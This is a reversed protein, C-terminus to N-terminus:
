QNVCASLAEGEPTCIAAYSEVMTGNFCSHTVRGPVGACLTFNVAAQECLSYLGIWYDVCQSKCGELTPPGLYCTVEMKSLCTPTCFDSELFQGWSVQGSAGSAGGGSGNSSSGGTASGGSSGSGSTGGITSGGSSSNGGTASGGGASTASNASPEKSPGCACALLALGLTVSSLFLHQSM